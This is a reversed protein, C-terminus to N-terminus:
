RRRSERLAARTEANPIHAKMRAAKVVRSPITRPGGLPASHHWYPSAYLAEWPRGPSAVKLVKISRPEGEPGFRVVFRRGELKVHVVTAENSMPEENSM